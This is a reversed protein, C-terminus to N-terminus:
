LRACPLSRPAPDGGGASVWRQLAWAAGKRGLCRGPRGACTMTGLNLGLSLSQCWVRGGSWSQAGFSGARSGAAGRM